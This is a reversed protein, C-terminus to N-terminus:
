MLIGGTSSVPLIKAFPYSGTLHCHKLLILITSGGVRFISCKGYCFMNPCGVPSYHQSTVLPVNSSTYTMGCIATLPFYLLQLFPDTTVATIM